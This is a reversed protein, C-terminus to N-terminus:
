KENADVLRIQCSILRAAISKSGVGRGRARFELARHVVVHRHCGVMSDNGEVRPV